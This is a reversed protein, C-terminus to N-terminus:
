DDDLNPQYLADPLSRSDDLVFDAKSDVQFALEQVCSSTLRSPRFKIIVPPGNTAVAANTKKPATAEESIDDDQHSHEWPATEVTKKTMILRDELMDTLLEPDSKIKRHKSTYKMPKSSIKQRPRRHPSCFNTLTKFLKLIPSMEHSTTTANQAEDSTVFARNAKYHPDACETLCDEDLYLSQDDEYLNRFLISDGEDRDVTGGTSANKNSRGSSAGGTSHGVSQGISYTLSDKRSIVRNKSTPNL